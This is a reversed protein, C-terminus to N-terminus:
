WFLIQKNLMVEIMDYMSSWCLNKDEAFIHHLAKQTLLCMDGDSNKM